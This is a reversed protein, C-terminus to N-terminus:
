CWPGVDGARDGPQDQGCRWLAECQVPREVNYRPPAAVLKGPAFRTRRAEDVFM